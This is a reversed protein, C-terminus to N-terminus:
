AATTQVRLLANFLGDVCQQADLTLRSLSGPRPLEQTYYHPGEVLYGVAWMRPERLGEVNIVHNGRDIDIGGPHYDGNHYPRILGRRLLNGMLTSDDELPSFVDIRSAILVDAMRRVVQTGFRSEIVFKARSSDGSTSSDPGGALDIVGSDLLCLLEANRHRPPGFVIRNLTNVFDEIFVAHSASTFGGYEAAARFVDRVDRLVDAAAKVPSRLNGREAQALDEVLFERFFSRFDELGAFRRNKLPDLIQEIAAREEAGLEFHEPPLPSDALAMHRAYAMDRMVLPLVETVFDIQRSGRLRHASARLAAVAEATFYRAVYRGGPGKQNIARCSFPLCKRSYVLLHPERGSREYRLTGEEVHFRGGRGVTLQSIVDHATLGLGCIAVTADPSIRELQEVPYASRFYGLLENEHAHRAVFAQLEQDQRTPRRRGHGTTLIVFDTAFDHGNELEVEFGNSGRRRIDSVRHRRHRIRVHPPLARVVRDFAASFYEGLLYRPLYDQDGIPEGMSEGVPHFGTGVRRYGAQKAWEGFSLGHKEGAASDPPFITVQTALTNTLLHRFQRACHTGQGCEGPDVLEILLEGTRPQRQAAYVIRELVSLGRPGLGVITVSTRNSAAYDM